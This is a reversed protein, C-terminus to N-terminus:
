MLDKISSKRNGGLKSVKQMEVPNIGKDKGFKEVFSYFKAKEQIKNRIFKSAMPLPLVGSRGSAENSSDLYKEKLQDVEEGNKANELEHLM